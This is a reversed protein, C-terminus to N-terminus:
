NPETLDPIPAMFYTNGTNVICVVGDSAYWMLVTFGGTKQDIMIQAATTPNLNSVGSFITKNGLGLEKTTELMRDAPGCVTPMALAQPSVRADGEQATATFPMLVLALLILLRM